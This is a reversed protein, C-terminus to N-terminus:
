LSSVVRILEMIADSARVYVTLVLIVILIAIVVIVVIVCASTDEVTDTFEEGRDVPLSDKNVDKQSPSVESERDDSNKCERWECNADENGFSVKVLARQADPAVPVALSIKLARGSLRFSLDMISFLSLSVSTFM